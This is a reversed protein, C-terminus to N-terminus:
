YSELICPFPGIYIGRAACISQATMAPFQWLIAVNRISNPMLQRCQDDALTIIQNNRITYFIPLSSFEIPDRCQWKTVGETGGNLYLDPVVYFFVCSLLIMLKLAM